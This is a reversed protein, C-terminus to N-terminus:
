IQYNEILDNDIKFKLSEILVTPRLTFSNESRYKEVGKEDYAIACRNKINPISSDFEVIKFKYGKYEIPEKIIDDIIKSYDDLELKILEVQKYTFNFGNDKFINTNNNTNFILPNPNSSSNGSNGGIVLGGYGDGNKNTNVTNFLDLLQKLKNNFETLFDQLLTKIRDIKRLLFKILNNVVRLLKAAESLFKQLKILKNILTTPLLPIQVLIGIIVNLINIFIELFTLIKKIVTLQKEVLNLLKLISEINKQINKYANYDFNERLRKASKKIKIELTVLYAETAVMFLSIVNNLMIVILDM